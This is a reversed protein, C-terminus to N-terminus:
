GGAIRGHLARWVRRGRSGLLARQATRLPQAAAASLESPSGVVNGLQMSARQAVAPLADLVGLLLARDEAALSRWARERERRGVEGLPLRWRAAWRGDAGVPWHALPPTEADAGVLLELAGGHAARPWWRLRVEAAERAGFSVPALSADIADSADAVASADIRDYRLRPPLAALQRRLREAVVQWRVANDGQAQHLVAVMADVLQRLLAWDGHGLSQLRHAAPADGPVFLMYDRGAEQGTPQWAMLPTPHNDNVFLAIGPRGHHEVLRADVKALTRDDAHVGHLLMALERHPPTDREQGIEVRDVREPIPLSQGSPAPQNRLSRWALYYHELEERLQHLQILQMEADHAAAESHEDSERKLAEAEAEAEARPASGQQRLHAQGERLRWWDRMVASADIGLALPAAADDALPTCSAHLEVHLAQTREDAAALTASLAAALADPTSAPAATPKFAFGLRQSCLSAMQNPWSSAEAADILLCQKPHQQAHRLLRVAGARWRQLVMEATTAGAADRALWEALATAPSAVFILYRAQPFREALADLVWCAAADVTGWRGTPCALRALEDLAERRLAPAELAPAETFAHGLWDRLLSSQLDTDAVTALLRSAAPLWSGDPTGVTFLPTDLMM